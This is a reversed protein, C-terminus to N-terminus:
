EAGSRYDPVTGKITYQEIDMVARGISRFRIQDANEPSYLVFSAAQEGGNVFVELSYRDLLIRLGLVGDALRVPISRRNVIDHPFGSRTRDIHLQMLLPDFEMTTQIDGRAALDIFFRKTGESLTGPRITVRLEVSRGGIGPLEKTGDVVVAEYVMYGCYLKELERVPRQILKGERFSLERPFIMQGNFALDKRYFRCTDWNQMWATMIRRGDPMLLTQPAYFDTGYDVPQAGKEAFRCSEKEYRGHMCVVAHGPHFAPDDGRNMQTSFLLLDTEDLAFLDPCEWMSGYRGNNALFTGRYKWAFGDKSEYALIAGTSDAARNAVLARFQGNEMWIRPDRFDERSGGEPVDDAGLVPNKDYKVYDTGDGAAVCQVQSYGPRDQEERYGTYMLLQRGDPLTVATGSFCGDRDYGEDPALACPLYTWNVLDDTVAHGWCITGPEKGFPNAQYFLHVRGDYVSFGNPDNIWGCLGTLHFAPRKAPDYEQIKGQEFARVKELEKSM